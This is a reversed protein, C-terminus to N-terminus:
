SSAPTPLNAIYITHEPSRPDLVANIRDAHVRFGVRGLREAFEPQPDASWVGLVGGPRLATRITTLGPTSYLEDNSPLTLASPGNDIDIIIADFSNQSEAIVEVVDRQVISVRSDALPANALHALENHNWNVIAGFFEAVVIETTDPSANLAARLTFGMGLGGILIRPAPSAIRSVVREALADESRHTRSSMLEYGNVRIGYVGYREYLVVEHGNPTTTRSLLNQFNMAIQLENEPYCLLPNITPGPHETQM